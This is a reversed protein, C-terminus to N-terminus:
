VILPGFAWQKSPILIVCYVLHHVRVTIILVRGSRKRKWDQSLNVVLLLRSDLHDSSRLLMWCFSSFCMGIYLWPVLVGSISSIYKLTDEFEEETPYFVPADVLDPIRAEEPRWKAIVKQCNSCEECGRIVGKTIQNSSTQNQVSESEDGSNSDFKGYNIWPRPRVSRKIKEDDSQEIVSENKVPHPKQESTVPVSVKTDEVRKLSFATISEFGPPISPNDMTEEKVHHRILEARFTYSFGRNGEVTAPLESFDGLAIRRLGKKRPRAYVCNQGAVESKRRAKGGEIFERHYFSSAFSESSSGVDSCVLVSWFFVM